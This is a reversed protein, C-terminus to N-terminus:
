DLLDLLDDVIVPTKAGDEGEGDAVALIDAFDEDSLPSPKWGARERRRRWREARWFATAADVPAVDVKSAAEHEARVRAKARQIAKDLKPLPIPEPPPLPGYDPVESELLTTRWDQTM